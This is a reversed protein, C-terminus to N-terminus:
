SIKISTATTYITRYVLYIPTVKRYAPMNEVINVLEVQKIPHNNSVTVQFMMDPTYFLDVAGFNSTEPLIIIEDSKSSLEKATRINGVTPSKGMSFKRHQPIDTTKPSELLERMAYQDNSSRFLHIVYMEFMIGKASPYNTM